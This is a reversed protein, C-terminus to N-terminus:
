EIVEDASFLLSQPVTLGLAKATKVNIVLDVKTDQQVPLDAPKEGKLIRGAYVGVQRWTDTGSTGYSMLGGAAAFERLQFIAPVAHRVTLAALQERQNSFLPDGGIVLGGAHLQALNAFVQDFDRETSARLVHLQLGLKDAASRLEGSETEATSRTPNVLLGLTPAAPVLEHLLELRKPGLEGGLNTVGTLNGGPRNLSPVLGVEVPDVGIQFVIPITTTAAKAASAAPGGGAVIVAVQRRVLDAASAPLRDYRGESWRYEIAVNKGAIYGTEGLGQQFAALFRASPEPSGSHLYGIVPMQQQARAAFPWAAAGGLLTIFDRRRLQDFPM